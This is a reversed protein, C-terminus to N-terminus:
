SRSGATSTFGASKRISRWSSSWTVVPMTLNANESSSASIVCTMEATKCYKSCFEASLGITRCFLPTTSVIESNQRSRESNRYLTSNGDPFLDAVVQRSSSPANLISGPQCLFLSSETTDMRGFMFESTKIGAFPNTYIWSRSAWGLNSGKVAVSKFLMIEISTRFIPVFLRGLHINQFYLSWYRSGEDMSTLANIWFGSEHMGSRLM